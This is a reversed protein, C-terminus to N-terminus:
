KKLRLFCGLAIGLAPLFWWRSTAPTRAEKHEGAQETRTEESASRSELRRIEEEYSYVLRQLSDCRAEVYLTDHLFRVIASARGEQRVYAAGPPLRRLSDLPLHLRAHGAATPATYSIRRRRHDLSDSLGSLQRTATARDTTRRTSQTRCFGACGALLLSASGLILLLICLPTCPPKIKM